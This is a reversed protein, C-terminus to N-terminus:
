GPPPPPQQPPQPPPPPPPAAAFQAGKAMPSLTRWISFGGIGTWLLYYASFEQSLSARFAHWTNGSLYGFASGGASGYQAVAYRHVQYAFAAYKGAVLAVVLSVLGVVVLAISRRGGSARSVLAGSLLGLAIAAIGYSHDTEIVMLAWGAAGIAAALVGAAVAM